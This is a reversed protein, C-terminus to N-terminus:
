RVEYACHLHRRKRPRKPQDSVNKLPKEESQKRRRNEKRRSSRANTGLRNKKCKKPECTNSSDCSDEVYKPKMRRKARKSHEKGAESSCSFSGSTEVEVIVNIMPHNMRWKGVRDNTLARM